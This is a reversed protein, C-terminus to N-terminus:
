LRCVLNCPSQLESTHEESRSDRCDKCSMGEVPSAPRPPPGEIPCVRVSTITAFSVSVATMGSSALITRLTRIRITGKTKRRYILIPLACTQVGTVKCDRIGD